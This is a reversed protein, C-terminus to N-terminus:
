AVIKKNQYIFHNFWSEFKWYEQEIHTILFVNLIRKIVDQFQLHSKVDEDSLYMLFIFTSDLWILYIQIKMKNM